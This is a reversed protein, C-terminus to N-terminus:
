AISKEFCSSGTSACLFFLFSISSCIHALSVYWLAWLGGAQDLFDWFTSFRRINSSYNTWLSWPLAWTLLSFIFLFFLSFSFSFSSNLTFTSTSSHHFLRLLLQCTALWFGVAALCLGFLSHPVVTAFVKKAKKIDKENSKIYWM